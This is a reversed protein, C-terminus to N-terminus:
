RQKTAPKRASFGMGYEFALAGGLKAGYLVLGIGVAEITVKWGEELGSAARFYTAAAIGAIGVVTTMAHIASVWMKERLKGTSPDHLGQKRATRLVDLLGSGIAPISAALGCMQLFYALQALDLSQTLSWKSLLGPAVARGVDLASGLVLYAIPFHVSAPHIHVM